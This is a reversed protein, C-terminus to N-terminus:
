GTTLRTDYVGVTYSISNSMTCRYYGQVTNDVDLWSFDVYNYTEPLVTAGSLDSNQSYRWVVSSGDSGCVLTRPEYFFTNGTLEEFEYAGDTIRGFRGVSSHMVINLQKSM